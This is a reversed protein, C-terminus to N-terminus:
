PRGEGIATHRDRVQKPWRSKIFALVAWIEDDSLTEGFGLMDAAYGPPAFKATGHKTIDFLQRNPHHWTHGSGDHPPAPLRGDPLRVRWNPQGELERGHCSACHEAYLGEGLAIAAPDTPIRELDRPRLVLALGVAGIVALIIALAAFRKNM